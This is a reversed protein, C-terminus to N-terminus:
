LGGRGAGSRDGSTFQRLQTKTPADWSESSSRRSTCIAYAHTHSMHTRIMSVPSTGKTHLPITVTSQRQIFSAVARNWAHQKTLQRDAVACTFDDTICCLLTERLKQSTRAPKLHHTTKKPTQKNLATVKSKLRQKSTENIEQAVAHPLDQYSHLRTCSGFM